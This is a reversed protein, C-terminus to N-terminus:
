ETFNGLDLAAANGEIVPFEIRFHAADGHRDLIEGALRDPRQSDGTWDPAQGVLGQLVASFDNLGGRRAQGRFEASFAVWIGGSALGAAYKANVARGAESFIM